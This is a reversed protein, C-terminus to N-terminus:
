AYRKILLPEIQELPMPKYYYYGQISTCNHTVLFDLQEQTEVGEAIVILELQNAILLMAKIIAEDKNDNAIGNVFSRDIKIKDIPLKKLYSLSSYHTGFDDISIQFGMARLELLKQQMDDRLAMNETIELEIYKPDLKFQSIISTIRQNINRQLLQRASLNVAIKIPPIGKAQWAQSQACVLELVREGLPVILGTKEAIPIFQNPPILGKVPHQWRVLAELGTIQGSLADIQPQYHIFFENHDLAHRLDNMTEMMDKSDSGLSHEYLLVQDKGSEKIHAIVADVNRLLTDVEVGHEPYLAVGISVMVYQETEKAPFPEAFTKYIRQAIERVTSMDIIASLIFAFKDGNLRAITDVTPLRDALRKGVENLLQDGYYHGITDNILKFNDIDLYIVAISLDSHKYQSILKELRENFYTRNYLGTLADHYAMHRLTQEKSELLELQNRLEKETKTLDLYTAALQNNAHELNTTREEVLTELMRKKNMQIYMFYLALLLLLLCSLSTVALKSHISNRMDRTPVAAMEWYGDALEIKQILQPDSFQSADGMLYQGEARLAIRNNNLGLRGEKLLSPVDIIVGTFGWFQDHYDITQLAILVLSGHKLTVPGLLVPHNTNLARQATSFVPESITSFIDTGVSSETGERPHIYNLKGDPLVSLYRIGNTNQLFRTVFTHFTDESLEGHEELQSTVFAALGESMLVRSNIISSFNAADVHLEAAVDNNMRDVLVNNYHFLLLTSGIIFFVAVSLLTMWIRALTLDHKTNWESKSSM